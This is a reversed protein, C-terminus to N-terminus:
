TVTLGLGSGIVPVSVTHWLLVTVTVEAVVPPVQDMLGVVTAVISADPTIVPTDAPVAVM